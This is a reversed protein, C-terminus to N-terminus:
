FLLVEFTMSVDLWGKKVKKGEMIRSSSFAAYGGPNAAFLRDTVLRKRQFITAYPDLSERDNKSFRRFDNPVAQVLGVSKIKKGLFGYNLIGTPVSRCQLANKLPRFYDWQVLIIGAIFFGALGAATVLNKKLGKRSRIM